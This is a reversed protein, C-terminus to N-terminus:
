SDRTLILQNGEAKEIQWSGPILTSTAAWCRLYVPNCFMTTLHLHSDQSHKEYLVM